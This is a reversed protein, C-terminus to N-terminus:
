PDLEIPMKLVLYWHVLTDRPCLLYVRQEGTGKHPLPALSSMQSSWSELFVSRKSSVFFITAVSLTSM